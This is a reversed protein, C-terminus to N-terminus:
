NEPERSNSDKMSFLEGGFQTRLEMVREVEAESLGHEERLRSRLGNPSLGEGKRGFEWMLPNLEIYQRIFYHEVEDRIIRDYFSRQWGPWRLSTRRHAERTVAAKFSRIISHLSNPTAHQFESKQEGRRPQIYEAGVPNNKNQNNLDRIEVIGHVHDPMIQFVDVRVTPFHDPIEKWDTEVIKGTESLIMRGDVVRGLVQM